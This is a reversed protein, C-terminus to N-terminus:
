DGTALGEINAGGAYNVPAKFTGNGNGLLVSITGDLFNAAAIDLKGDGDSNPLNSEGQCEVQTM